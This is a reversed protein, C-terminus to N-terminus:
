RAKERHDRDISKPNNSQIREEVEALILQPNLLVKKIEEWVLPELKDARIMKSKCPRDVEAKSTARWCQYYREKRKTSGRGHMAARCKCRVHGRLLYKQKLGRRALKVNRKLQKQAQWFLDEPILAPSANPQEIWEERARETLVNKGNCRVRKWRWAVTKGIYERRLMIRALTSTHWRKGGRPAPIDADMLRHAM